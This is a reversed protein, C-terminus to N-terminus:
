KYTTTDSAASKITTDSVIDIKDSSNISKRFKTKFLWFGILLIAAVGFSILLFDANRKIRIVNMIQLIMVIFMAAFFAIVFLLVFAIIVGAPNIEM